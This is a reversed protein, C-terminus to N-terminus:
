LQAPKPYIPFFLFDHPARENAEGDPRRRGSRAASTGDTAVAV